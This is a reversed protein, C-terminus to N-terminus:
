PLQNKSRIARAFFASGEATLHDTDFLLPVGSGAYPPCGGVDAAKPVVQSGCLDEYMSIYPVNWQSAALVAMDHDMEEANKSRHQEIEEPKGDRMAMALVRPLPSDYEISPGFVVAVMGHNHIWKVTMGLKTFDAPQWRGTLLVADVHHHLLYDGYIFALMKQCSDDVFAAGTAPAFPRCAASTAQSVNRDSFVASLGPYLAAGHSDGLILYQKRRATGAKDDLCVSPKFDAFTSGPGVIFCVNQRYPAIESYDLYAAVKRAADSFRWPLGHSFFMLCAVCALVGAAIASEIFLVRRGPRWKGERFPTEVFRWSLAAVAVSVGALILAVGHGGPKLHLINATNQFVIIPWHWLYLSYSILGVFVVPRWSLLISVASPGTEGASIILAAGMCPPLATLGPFTTGSSFALASGVILLIGLASAVNRKVVGVVPPVYHQSIVTGILLEWARLPAFFYAASADRYVWICALAFTVGTVTWIAARTRGPLWKKIAVLFIPFFIYFQEEVGLSWTHLLPKFASPADFYGAQHWFVFNSVSFLSALMTPAFSEIELPTYYLFALVSVGLLMVMLAPFIRRVRREYFHLISFTGADMGNLIVSSILYGSIVFFVDVGVYGGTFRLHLHDALVLLVAVARLGDVDPRYAPKSSREVREETSITATSSRAM